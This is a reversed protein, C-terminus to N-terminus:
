RIARTPDRVDPGPVDLGAMSVFLIANTGNDITAINGWPDNINTNAWTEVLQGNADLVLLGGAGMTRTTGDTSPTSGVIVWGSKLMTM